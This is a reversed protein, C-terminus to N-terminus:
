KVFNSNVNILHRRSRQVVNNKDKLLIYSQSMNKKNLIMGTRTWNNNQCYRFTGSTNLLQLEGSRSVAPKKLKINTNVNVNLSPVLTPLKKKMLFESPSVDSSNKTTRLALIALYSDSDDEKRKQLTKKITQIAREVFENSQPFKPISKKQM